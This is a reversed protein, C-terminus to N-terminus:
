PGAAGAAPATIVYRQSYRSLSWPNTNTVNTQERNSLQRRTAPVQPGRAEVRDRLRNRNYWQGNLRVMRWRPRLDRSLWDPELRGDRFRAVEAASALSMAATRAIGEASM